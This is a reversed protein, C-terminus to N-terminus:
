RIELDKSYPLIAEIPKKGVNEIKEGSKEVKKSVKEMSDASQQALDKFKGKLYDVKDEATKFNIEGSARQVQGFHDSTKKLDTQLGDLTQQTRQVERQFARYDEQGIEGQEFMRNIKEQAGKLLDLQKATEEVRQKLITEKQALLEVDNPNGKLLKNVERLEKQLNKSRGKSDDLSKGLKTTDGGIEVTLGRIKKNMAM